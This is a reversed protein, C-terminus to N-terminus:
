RVLLVIGPLLLNDKRRTDTKRPPPLAGAVAEGTCRRQHGAAIAM